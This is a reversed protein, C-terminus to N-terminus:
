EGAYLVEEEKKESICDPSLDSILTRIAENTADSIIVAFTEDTVDIPPEWYTDYHAKKESDCLTAYAKQIEKFRNEDGGVDPHHIAALKRYALKIQDDDASIEVGLIEYLNM